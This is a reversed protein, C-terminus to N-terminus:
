KSLNEKKLKCISKQKDKIKRKLYILRQSESEEESESKSLFTAKDDSSADSM